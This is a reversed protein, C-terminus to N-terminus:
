NLCFISRATTKIQRFVYVRAIRHRYANRMNMAIPHSSRIFSHISVRKGKHCHASAFILFPYKGNEMYACKIVDYGKWNTTSKSLSAFACM